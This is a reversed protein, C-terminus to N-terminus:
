KYLIYYISYAIMILSASIYMGIHIGRIYYKTFVDAIRVLIENHAYTESAYNLLDMDEKIMLITTITIVATVVLLVLKQLTQTKM